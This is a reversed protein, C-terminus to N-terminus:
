PLAAPHAQDYEKAPLLRIGHGLTVTGRLPVRAQKRAVETDEIALTATVDCHGARVAILCGGSVDAVLAHVDFVVCLDFNLTAVSHDDVLLSIYPQQEETIQHDALEVLETSRPTALTHRAATTLEQHKRWGDILMDVLDVDLLGATTDAIERIAIERTTKKLNKLAHDLKQEAALRRAIAEPTDTGRGFLLERVTRPVPPQATTV